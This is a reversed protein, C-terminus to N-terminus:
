SDRPRRMRFSRTSLKRVAEKHDRLGCPCIDNLFEAFGQQTQGELGAAKAIQDLGRHLLSVKPRPLFELSFYNVLYAAEMARIIGQFVKWSKEEETYNVTAVRKIADGFAGAHQEEWIAKVDKEPILEALCTPEKPKPLRVITKKNRPRRSLSQKIQAIVHSTNLPYSKPYQQDRKWATKLQERAQWLIEAIEKSEIWQEWRHGSM